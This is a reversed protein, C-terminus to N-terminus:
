DICVYLCTCDYMNHYMWSDGQDPVGVFNLVSKRAKSSFTSAGYWLAVALDHLLMSRSLISTFLTVGM